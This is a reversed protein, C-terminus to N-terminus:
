CRLFIQHRKRMDSLQFKILGKQSPIICAFMKRRMYWDSIEGLITCRVLPKGERVESLAADLLIVAIVVGSGVGFSAEKVRAEFEMVDRADMFGSARRGCRAVRERLDFGRM